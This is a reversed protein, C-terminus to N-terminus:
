EFIITGVCQGNVLNTNPPCIHLPMPPASTIGSPGWTPCTDDPQHLGYLRCIEGSAAGADVMVQTLGRFFTGQALKAGGSPERRLWEGVLKPWATGALRVSEEHIVGGAGAEATDDLSGLAQFIGASSVFPPIPARISQPRAFTLDQMWAGGNGPTNSAPFNPHGDFADHVLSAVRAVQDLFPLSNLATDRFPSTVQKPRSTGPITASTATGFTWAGFNDEICRLPNLVEGCWVMPDNWNASTTPNTIFDANFAGAPPFYNVGGAIQASFFDAIAENMYVNEFQSQDQKLIQTAITDAATSTWASSAKGPDARYMMDCLAFHGYEHSVVGRSRTFDGSPLVIDVDGLAIDAVKGIVFGASDGGITGILSSARALSDAIVPVLAGAIRAADAGLTAVVAATTLAAATYAAAVVLLARASALAAAQQAGQVANTLSVLATIADALAQKAQDIAQQTAGQSQLRVVKRGAEIVTAAGEAAVAAAQRLKLAEDRAANVAAAAEAVAQAASTAAAQVTAAAWKDAADAWADLYESAQGASDKYVSGVWKGAFSGLRRGIAETVLSTDTYGFCPAYPRGESSILDAFFGTLIQAQKPTYGVVDQLYHYGETLQAMANVLDGTLPATITRPGSLEAASILPNRFSCAEEVSVWDDIEAAQNKLRICIGTTSSKVVKITAVGAANATGTSLSDFPITGSVKPLLIGPTSISTGPIKVAPISPRISFTIQQLARVQVGSMPVPTGRGAGWARLMLTNTGGFGPDSNRVELNVTLTTSGKFLASLQALGKRVLDGTGKVVGVATKVLKKVWKGPSFGWPQQVSGSGVTEPACALGLGSGSTAGKIADLVPDGGAPPNLFPSDCAAEPLTADPGLVNDPCNPLGRYRFGQTALYGYSLSGNSNKAAAVPIDLVKVVRFVQTAIAPDACLAAERILNYILGPIVAFVFGGEGDFSSTTVGTMGSWLLDREVDFLPMADWHIGLDDLTAIDTRDEVYIRAYWLTPNGDPGFNPVATTQPWRFGDRDRRSDDPAIAPPLRGVNGGSCFKFPGPTVASPASPQCAPSTFTQWHRFTQHRVTVDPNATIRKAFFSGVHGGTVTTLTVNAAPSVLTGSFSGQLSIDSCSSCGVFFDGADGGVHSIKGKYLLSNQVYVFVPGSTENVILKSTPETTISTFYYTGSSLTVEGSTAVTLTGYGSPSLTRKQSPQVQINAGGQPFAVNWSTLATSTTITTQTTPGAVSVGTQQTIPGSVKLFGSVIADSRLFVSAASWVNGVNSGVGFESQEAGVNSVTAPGGATETTKARDALTLKTAAGLAVRQPTENNPLSISLTATTSLAEVRSETNDADGSCAAALVTLLFVQPRVLRHASRRVIMYGGDQIRM